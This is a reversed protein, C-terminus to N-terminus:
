PVFGCDMCRESAALREDPRFPPTDESEDSDHVSLHGICELEFTRRGDSFQIQPRQDRVSLPLTFEFRKRLIGRHGPIDCNHDRDIRLDIVDQLGDLISIRTSQNPVNVYEVDEHRDPFLLYALFSIRGVVALTDCKM